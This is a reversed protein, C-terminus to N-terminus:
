RAAVDAQSGCRAGCVLGSRRRSALDRRAGEPDHVDRGDHDYDHKRTPASCRSATRRCPCAWRAGHRGHRDAGMTMYGPVRRRVGEDLSAPARRRDPQPHEHGMQNMVHHTMHCHMAWDGPEDAVFEITARAASPVLVTTEPRQASEAIEGGDTETIHFQYGHLHIPHHDMASLNGLRIRVREGRAHRRAAGDRSRAAREHTLVNFDTMENPDPRKAGPMSAAVRQLMLAFDRDLAHAAPPASPHRLPGDHGLAMQTMEDHHSHYM